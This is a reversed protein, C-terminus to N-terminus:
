LIYSLGTKSNGSWITGLLIGLRLVSYMRNLTVSYMRNLEKEEAIAKMCCVSELRVFIMYNIM